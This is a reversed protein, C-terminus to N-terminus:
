VKGLNEFDPNKNTEEKEKKRRPIQRETETETETELALLDTWMLQVLASVWPFFTIFFLFM